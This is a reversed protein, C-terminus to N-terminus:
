SLKESFKPESSRGGAEAATSSATRADLLKLSKNHQDQLDQLSKELRAVQATLHDKESRLMSVAAKSDELQINAQQYAANTKELQAANERVQFELEHYARIRSELQQQLFQVHNKHESALDELCAKEVAAPMKEAEAVPAPPPPTVIESLSIDKIDPMPQLDTVSPAMPVEAKVFSLANQLDKIRKKYHLLERQLRSVISIDVVQAATLESHEGLLANKKKQRYHFITTVVFSIVILPVAIWLVIQLFLKFEHFSALLLVM